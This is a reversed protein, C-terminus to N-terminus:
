ERRILYGFLFVIITIIGSPLGFVVSLECFEKLFYNIDFNDSVFQTM